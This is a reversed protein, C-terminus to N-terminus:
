AASRSSRRRRGSTASSRATSARSRRRRRGARSSTCGRGCSTRCARVRGRRAGARHDGFRSAGAGRCRGSPALARGPGRGDHRRGLVLRRRRGRPQLRLAGGVPRGVLDPAAGRDGTGGGTRGGRWGGVGPRPRDRPPPRSRAGDAARDLRGRPVGRALPGDRRDPRARRDVAVGMGSTTNADSAGGTAADSSRSGSGRRSRRPTSSSGAPGSSSRWRGGAPWRRSRPPRTRCRRAGLM